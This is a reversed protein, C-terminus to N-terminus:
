KVNDSQFYVYTQDVILKSKGYDVVFIRGSDCSEKSVVKIPSRRFEDDTAYELAFKKYPLNVSSYGTFPSLEDKDLLYFQKRLLKIGIDINKLSGIYLDADNLFMGTKYYGVSVTLDSKVAIPRATGNAGSLGSNIDVSVKYAPSRNINEILNIMDERLEGSFGTGLICDVIIDYASFETFEDCFAERVGKNKCRNYYYAGDESLKESLRLVVPSFGNDVLIEALAYGDGGNNGSGCVIAINGSWKVSNYVGAAARLMLEQGSVSTNITFADSERMNKVTIVNEM